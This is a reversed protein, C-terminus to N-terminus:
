IKEEETLYQQIFYKSQLLKDAITLRPLYRTGSAMSVARVKRTDKLVQLLEKLLDMSGVDAALHPYLEKATMPRKGRRIADLVINAQTANRAIGFHGLALPMAVEARSLLTNAFLVDDLTVEIDLRACASILCLKLLHTFRVGVYTDFRSDDLFHEGQYIEDLAKTAADSIVVEGLPQEILAQVIAVLEEQIHPCPTSPFTIKRTREGYILLLRRMFGGGIAHAPIVRTFSSPTAGGILSLTPEHIYLSNKTTREYDWATQNDWLDVLNDILEEDNGIFDILESAVIYMHATQKPAVSSYLDDLTLEEISSPSEGGASGEPQFM